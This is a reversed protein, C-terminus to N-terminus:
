LLLGDPDFDLFSEVDLAKSREVLTQFCICYVVLYLKFYNAIKFEVRLFEDHRSM